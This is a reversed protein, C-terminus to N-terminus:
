IIEAMVKPVDIMIDGAVQNLRAYWPLRMAGGIVYRYSAGIENSLLWYCPPVCDAGFLEVVRTGPACFVLNALGSGHAGVIIEADRFLRVQDLFTLDELLFAEFGEVELARVLEAENLVRRSGAKARSIYIRRSPGRGVSVGSLFRERLFSCVWGSPEGPLTPVILTEAELHLGPEGIIRDRTLSLLDLIQKQFPLSCPLVIKDWRANSNELLRLRPLTDFLFHYYNSSWVMTLVAITGKIQRLHPLKPSFFVASGTSDKRNLAKPAVEEVLCDDPTIVTGSTTLVRGNPISAVGVAPTFLPSECFHPPLDILKGPRLQVYSASCSACFSSDRNGQHNSASSPPTGPNAAVCEALTAVRHRPPGFKRSTGPLRRLLDGLAHTAPWLVSSRFYRYIPLVWAPGHRTLFRKALAKV